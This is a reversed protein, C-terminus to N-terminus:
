RTFPGVIGQACSSFRDWVDASPPQVVHYARSAPVGRRTFEITFDGSAVATMLGDATTPDTTSMQVGGDETPGGYLRGPSNFVRSYLAASSLPAQTIGGPLGNKVSIDGVDVIFGVYTTETQKAVAVTLTFKVQEPLRPFNAILVLLHCVAGVKDQSMEVDYRVALPELTEARAQAALFAIM